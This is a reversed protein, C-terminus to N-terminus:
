LAVALTQHTVGSDGQTPAVIPDFKNHNFKVVKMFQTM